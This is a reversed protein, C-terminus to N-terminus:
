LQVERLATTLATLYEFAKEPYKRVLTPTWNDISDTLLQVEMKRTGQRAVLVELVVETAIEAADENTRIGTTRVGDSATYRESALNAARFTTLLTERDIEGASM